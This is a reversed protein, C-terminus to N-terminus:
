SSAFSLMLFTKNYKTACSKILSAWRPVNSSMNSRLVSFYFLKGVNMSTKMLLTRVDDHSARATAFNKQAFISFSNLLTCVGPPPDKVEKIKGGDKWGHWFWWQLYFYAFIQRIFALFRVLKMSAISLDVCSFYIMMTERCNALSENM